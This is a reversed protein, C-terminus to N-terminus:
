TYLGPEELISVKKIGKAAALEILRPKKQCGSVCHLHVNRTNAVPFTNYMHTNEHIKNSIFNCSNSSTTGGQINAINVHKSNGDSGHHRLWISVNEAKSAGQSPFGSTVPPNGECLGTVGLKSIKMWRRWFLRNLSHDLRQDNSVGDPENHRWQLAM